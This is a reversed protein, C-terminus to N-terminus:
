PTTAFTSTTHPPNESPARRSMAQLRPWLIWKNQRDPFWWHGWHPWQMLRSGLTLSFHRLAATNIPHTSPLLQVWGKPTLLLSSPGNAPGTSPTLVNLTISQSCPQSMNNQTFISVHLIPCISKGPSFFYLSYFISNGCVVAEQTVTQFGLSPVAHLNLLCCSHQTVTLACFDPDVTYIHGHSQETYQLVPTTSGQKTGPQSDPVCARSSPHSSCHPSTENSDPTGLIIRLIQHSESSCLLCSIVLTYGLVPSESWRPSPATQCFFPHNGLEQRRHEGQWPGHACGRRARAWHGGPHDTLSQM